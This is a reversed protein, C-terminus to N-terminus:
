PNPEPEAWARSKKSPEPEVNQSPGLSSEKLLAWFIPAKMSYFNSARRPEVKKFPGLSPGLEVKLARARGPSTNKPTSGDSCCVTHNFFHMVYRM